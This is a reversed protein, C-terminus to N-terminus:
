IPWLVELNSSYAVLPLSNKFLSMGTKIIENWVTKFSFSQKHIIFESISVNNKYEITSLFM